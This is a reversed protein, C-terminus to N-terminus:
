TNPGDDMMENELDIRTQTLQKLHRAVGLLRNTDASFIDEYVVDINEHHLTQIITECKFMHEQTDDENKCLPCLTDTQQYNNRFNNRVNFMRTRFKFLLNVIDPTFRPDRMYKMGDMNSYLNTRVKSHTRGITLLHQLAVKAVAKKIKEKLSYKSDSLVENETIDLFLM